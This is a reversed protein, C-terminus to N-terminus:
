WSIRQSRESWRISHHQATWAVAPVRSDAEVHLSGRPPLEFRVVYTREEGRAVRVETGVVRTPGDAGAVALQDVGDIRSQRAVGPLNVSLIGLYVGEGVGSRPDPGAVYTPEGLPVDNRLHVTLTAEAPGASSVVDLSADVSLFQDLKTGSRNLVGLLLSDGTLAGDVGAAVWGQQEKPRSSWALVHRDRAVEAMAKALLAPDWSRTELASLVAKAVLGLEEHRAGQDPDAAHDVYQAHLIRDTVNSSDLQRGAVEVPGVAVLVAKLFLPDLALVGDVPGGGTAEWMSAALPATQDFRPSAGLNRWERGPSLWGWRDAFDGSIAIGPPALRLDSAPRFPILELRGEKTELGGISLFMGSGARMEANNAALILYRRPGGLVDATATAGAAARGLTSQVRELQRAFEDHQRRVPGLLNRGPTRHITAARRAGDGAAAGLSRLVAVREPGTSRDSNLAVQTAQLTDISVDAVQVAGDSLDQLERVQRGLVPLLSVGRLPVSHLSARAREFRVRGRRLDAVLEPDKLSGGSASDAAGRSLRVGQHGAQAALLLEVGGWVGWAVLLLFVVM